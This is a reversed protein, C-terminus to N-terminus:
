MICFLGAWIDLCQQEDSWVDLWELSWCSCSAMGSGVGFICYVVCCVIGTLSEEEKSKSSAKGV